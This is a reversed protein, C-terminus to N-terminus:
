KDSRYCYERLEIKLVTGDNVRKLHRLIEKLSNAYDHKDHFKIARLVSHIFSARQANADNSYM